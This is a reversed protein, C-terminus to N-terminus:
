FKEIYKTKVTIKEQKELEPQKAENGNADVVKGDKYTFMLGEYASGNGKKPDDQSPLELRTRESSWIPITSQNVYPPYLVEVKDAGHFKIIRAKLSVTTGVEIRRGNRDVIKRTVPEIYTIIEELGLIRRRPSDVDKGDAKLGESTDGTGAGKDNTGVDPKPGNDVDIDYGPDVEEEVQGGGGSGELPPETVDAYQGSSGAPPIIRGGGSQGRGIQAENLKKGSLGSGSSANLESVMLVREEGDDFRIHAAQNPEEGMVNTIRGKRGQYNVEENKQVM